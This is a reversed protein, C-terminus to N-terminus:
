NLDFYVAFCRDSYRTRIYLEQFLDQDGISIYARDTENGIIESPQLPGDSCFIGEFNEKWGISTKLLVCNRGDPTRLGCATGTASLHALDPSLTYEAADALVNEKKLWELVSKCDACSVPGGVAQKM